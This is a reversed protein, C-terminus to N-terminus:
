AQAVQSGKPSFQPNPGQERRDGYPDKDWSGKEPRQKDSQSCSAHLAVAFPIMLVVGAVYSFTRSSSSIAADRLITYMCLFLFSLLIFCAPIVLWMQRSM